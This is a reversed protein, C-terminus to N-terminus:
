EQEYLSEELAEASDAEIIKRALDFGFGQRALAALDKDRQEERNKIRYPGIRRRKAYAVAATLDLDAPQEEAAAELALDIDESAVGKARLKMRVTRPANGRRLLSTVKVEAYQRDNLLGLEQLKVIIEDIWAAGEEPNTSHDRASKLVRRMLVQRLNESSSAFRQLYFLAGNHLRSKTIPRSPRRNRGGQTNQKKEEGNDMQNKIM